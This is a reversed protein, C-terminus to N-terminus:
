EQQMTSSVASLTKFCLDLFSALWGIMEPDSWRSIMSERLSEYVEIVDINTLKNEIENLNKFLHRVTPYMMSLTPYQDGEVFTLARAFPRLLQCLEKLGDACTTRDPNNALSKALELISKQLQNQQIESLPLANEVHKQLVQEITQYSTPTPITTSPSPSPELQEWAQKKKKVINVINSNSTKKTSVERLTFYSTISSSGIINDDKDETHGGDEDDNYNENGIDDNEANIINENSVNNDDDSNPEFNTIRKYEFSM